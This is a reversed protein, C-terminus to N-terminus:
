DLENEDEEDIDDDVAGDQHLRQYVKNAMYSVLKEPRRTGAEGPFSISYAVIPETITGMKRATRSVHRKGNIIESTTDVEVEEGRLIYILLLPNFDNRVKRYVSGTISSEPHQKHYESEAEEIREKPLGISELKAYGLRRRGANIYIFKDDKQISRKQLNIVHGGIEVSGNECKEPSIFCVDWQKKGSEALLDIFNCLPTADTLPSLSSTRFERIFEKIPANSDTRWLKGSPNTQEPTGHLKGILRKAASFNNDLDEQESSLYTTEVIRGELGIQVCVQKACRMKNKATVILTNPHAKVCLGFDKPTMGALKMKRFEDALEEMAGAIHIYWSRSQKTMYVRCLEEYGPRYGFWRGMQMLTDYMISNRLFYSVMLGELTIGRSLSMGGVVIVTRGNPYNRKTYDLVDGNRKADSNVELVEIPMASEKLLHQIEIWPIALMSGDEGKIRGDFEKLFLSHFSKLVENQLANEEPLTSYISIAEKLEEVYGLVLNKIVGHLKTFRTVNVLASYCANRQGKYLRIAKSLIFVQIAELLSAPLYTIELNKKHKIPLPGRNDDTDHDKIIRIIEDTDKEALFVKRPGVYNEPAEMSLIFDRPFIDNEVDPDIFINAFPTATYGLYSSKNFLQLLDRIKRNVATAEKEPPNGNVGYYDAEDDILLMPYEKLKEGNNTKLWSILSNLSSPLKKIVFVVPDNFQGLGACMQNAMKQTFDAEQTTFAIPKHDDRLLGAGSLKQTVTNIGIFGDDIREQTQSRLINLSGGLVILVKYGCDAAKSLVGIYNATKGAQVQGVVMGRRQWQGDKRPDELHDIIDDTIQGIDNVTTIHMPNKKTILYDRYRRWYYFDITSKANALWPHYEEAFIDYHISSMHVVRAEVDKKIQKLESDTPNLQHLQLLNTIWFDMLHDDIQKGRSLELNLNSVIMDEIEKFSVLVGSNQHNDTM